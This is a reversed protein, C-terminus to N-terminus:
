APPLVKSTYHRLQSGGDCLSVRRDGVFVGKCHCFHSVLHVFMYHSCHCFYSVNTLCLIDQYHKLLNLASGHTAVVIDAAAIDERAKASHSSTHCATEIRCPLNARLSDTHQVALAISPVLFLIQSKAGGAAANGKNTCALFDKILMIGILTKGMGTGLHVITNGKKARELMFIQYDRLKGTFASGLNQHDKKNVDADEELYNARRKTFEDYGHSQIYALDRNINELCTRINQTQQEPKFPSRFLFDKENPRSETSTKMEKNTGQHSSHPHTRKM